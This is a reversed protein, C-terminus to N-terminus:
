VSVQFLVSISKLDPLLDPAIFNDTIYSIAASTGTGVQVVADEGVTFPLVGFVMNDKSIRRVLHSRGSLVWSYYCLRYSFENKCSKSGGRWAEVGTGKSM